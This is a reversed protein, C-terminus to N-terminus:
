ESSGIYAGDGTREGPGAGDNIVAYTVFPNAGATRRVQAYGQQVGPANNLITGIQIWGRAPLSIPDLTKVKSGTAGDYLDIVFTDSNADTEGTNVIALNTRNESNQQLGFVWASSTSAQGYPVATYFLGFRGGASGGSASTRAGLVVGSLDGGAATAFLAGAITTGAPM